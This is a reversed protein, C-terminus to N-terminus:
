GRRHPRGPRPEAHPIASRALRQGIRGVDRRAAAKMRAAWYGFLAARHLRRGEFRPRRTAHLTQEHRLSETTGVPAFRLPPVKSSALLVGEVESPTVSRTVEVEGSL